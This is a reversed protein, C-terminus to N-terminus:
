LVTSSRGKGGRIGQIFLQLKTRCLLVRQHEDALFHRGRQEPTLPVSEVFSYIPRPMGVDERKKQNMTM